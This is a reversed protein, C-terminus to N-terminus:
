VINLRSKVMDSTHEIFEKVSCNLGAYAIAKKMENEVEEVSIHEQRAIHKLIEEYTM